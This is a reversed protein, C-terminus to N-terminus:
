WVMVLGTYTTCPICCGQCGWKITGQYITGAVGGECNSNKCTMDEGVARLPAAGDKGAGWSGM